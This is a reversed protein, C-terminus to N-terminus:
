GGISSMKGILKSKNFQYGVPKKHIAEQINKGLEGDGIGQRLARKLDIHRGSGLCLFLKGNAALRIRNCTQCFKHSIPSILGIKGLSDPYQYYDAPGAAKEEVEVRELPALSNLIELTTENSFFDDKSELEDSMYEIFRVHLPYEFTLRAFDLIEDTNFNKQLVVNLKVPDFGAKISEKIGTWCREFDGGRTIERYRDERLSDVSINIRELGAKKLKKALQPLLIGNTTMALDNLGLQSLSQVFGVLGERITPEGGTIRIKEIGLGNLIKVIRLFEQYTLLENTPINSFETTPM